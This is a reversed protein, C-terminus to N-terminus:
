WPTRWRDRATGARGGGRARRARSRGPNASRPLSRRTPATAPRATAVRECERYLRFELYDTLIPNPLGARYRALRGGAEARDLDAGPEKCEIHGVPAGSRMVVDDPAGCAVQAPENVVSFGRGALAAVLARLEPRYSHETAYGSARTRSVDRRYARLLPAASGPDM